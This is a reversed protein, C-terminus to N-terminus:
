RDSPWSIGFLIAEYLVAAAKKYAWALGEVDDHMIIVCFASLSFFVILTYYMVYGHLRSVDILTYFIEIEFLYMQLYSFRKSRGM